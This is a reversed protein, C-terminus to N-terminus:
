LYAGFGCTRNACLCSGFFLDQELVPVFWFMKDVRKNPREIGDRITDLRQGIRYM